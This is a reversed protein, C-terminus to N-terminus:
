KSTLKDYESVIIPTYGTYEGEIIKAEEGKDIDKRDILAYFKLHETEQTLIIEKLKNEMEIKEIKIWKKRNTMLGKKPFNFKLKKGFDEKNSNIELIAVAQIKNSKIKDTLYEFRFPEFIKIEVKALSFSSMILFLSLIIKKM